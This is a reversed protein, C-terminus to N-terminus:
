GILINYKLREEGQLTFLGDHMDPSRGVGRVGVREGLLYKGHYHHLLIIFSLLSSVLSLRQATFTLLLYVNSYM